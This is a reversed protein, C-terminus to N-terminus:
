RGFAGDRGASWSISASLDGDEEDKGRAYVTEPVGAVTAGLLGIEDGLADLLVVDIAVTGGTELAGLGATGKSVYRREEDQVSSEVTEPISPNGILDTIEFEVSDVRDTGLEAAIAFNTADLQVITVAGPVEVGDIVLTIPTWDPDVTAGTGTLGQAVVEADAAGLLSGDAGRATVVLGYVQDVAGSPDDFTLTTDGYLRATRTPMDDLSSLLQTGESDTALIQVSAGEGAPRDVRTSIKLDGSGTATARVKGLVPGESQDGVSLSLTQSDLVQGGADLLTTGITYASGTDFGPPVDNPGLNTVWRRTTNGHTLHEEEGDTTTIFVGLLESPDWFKDENFATVRLSGAQTVKVRGKWGGDFLVDVPDGGPSLVGEIPATLITEGGGGGPPAVRLHCVEARTWLTGGNDWHRTRAHRPTDLLQDDITGGAVSPFTVAVTATDDSSDGPTTDGTVVVVKYGTTPRKKLKNRRIFAAEASFADALISDGPLGRAGLDAVVPAGLLFSTALAVTLPTRM